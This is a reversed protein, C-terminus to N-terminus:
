LTPMPSKLRSAYVAFSSVIAEFTLLALQWLLWDDHYPPVGVQGWEQPSGLQCNDGEHMNSKVAKYHLMPLSVPLLAYSQKASASPDTFSAKLGPKAPM